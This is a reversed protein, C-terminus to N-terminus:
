KGDLLKKLKTYSNTERNVLIRSADAQEQPSCLAKKQDYISLLDEHSITEEKLTTKTVTVDIDLVDGEPTESGTITKHLWARAKREAKGSVQDTSSHENIKIPIDLEQSGKVGSHTYEIKMVIAASNGSMRPLSPAIKWTLSPINRLLYGFGDKTIYTSDKIINFQNGVPQVGFLVAEILCERVVDISYGPGKSGDKNRDKDTRFGLKSGQLKMIPAMYEPTLLERLGEVATALHYAKAFGELENNGLFDSVIGTM